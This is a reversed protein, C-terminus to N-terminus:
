FFNDLFVLRCCSSIYLTILSLFVSSCFFLRQFGYRQHKSFVKRGGTGLMGGAILVDDAGGAKATAVAPPSSARM